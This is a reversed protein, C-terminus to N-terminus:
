DEDDPDTPDRDLAPMDRLVGRLEALRDPGPQDCDLLRSAQRQADTVKDSLV